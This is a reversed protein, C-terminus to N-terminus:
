LAVRPHSGPFARREGYEAAMRAFGEWPTTGKPFDFMNGIIPYGKPGPPYPPRRPGRQRLLLAIVIATAVVALASGAYKEPLPM